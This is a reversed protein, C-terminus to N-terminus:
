GTRTWTTERQPETRRLARRLEDIRALLEVRPGAGAYNLSLGADCGRVPRPPRAAARRSGCSASRTAPRARAPRARRPAPRTPICAPRAARLADLGSPRRSPSLSRTRSM